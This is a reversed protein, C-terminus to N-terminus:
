FKSSTTTKSSSTESTSTNAVPLVVTSSSSVESSTVVESSATTTPLSVATSPIVQSPSAGSGRETFNPLTVPVSIPEVKEDVRLSRAIMTMTSRYNVATDNPNAHYVLAFIKTGTMFYYVLHDQRGLGQDKFKTTLLALDTLRETPAVESFWDFFSKGFQRDFVRVEAYEGRASSLLVDRNDTDISAVKWSTPYLLHYGFSTNDYASVVGSDTLRSPEKEIPSYLNYVEHGDPYSDNDTDVVGLDSRYIEEEEADTLADNDTDITDVLLLSPFQLSLVGPPQVPPVVVPLSSSPTVEALTTTPVVVAAPRTIPAAPQSAKYQWIYYGAAVIVVIIFLIGTAVLMKKKDSFFHVPHRSNGGGVAAQEAFAKQDPVPVAGIQSVDVEKHTTKFSVVPNQGGYFEQPIGQVMLPQKVEEPSSPNPKPASGFM